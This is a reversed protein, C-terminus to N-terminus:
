VQESVVSPTRYVRDGDCLLMGAEEDGVLQQPEPDFHLSRRLRYSPNALHVFASSIDFGQETILGTKLEARRLSISSCSASQV